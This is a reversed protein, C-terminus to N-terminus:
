KWTTEAPPTKEGNPGPPINNRYKLWLNKVWLIKYHSSAVSGQRNLDGFKLKTFDKRGKEAAVAKVHETDDETMWRDVYAFFADHNWVKEAHMLRMALAQGVWARSTNAIRYGESSLLDKGPLPWDKPHYLDLIGQGHEWKGRDGGDGAWTHGIFIAKAGTYGHEFTQGRYTIPCMATQDDEQFRATPYAIKPQQMDQDDLLLGAFVIPWKRGQNLGGHVQWLRGARTMGWFDIGVQIFNVLLREKEEPTYDMLLLLSAENVNQLVDQGYHDMNELPASFGFDAFDEYPRQFIRAYRNLNAPMGTLKPLKLLLDRKLNRALNIKSYASDCFSPRFADAPQADKVCTLVAATRVADVFQGGYMTIEDNRRSISSMLSDSPRMAIPLPTFLSPNYRGGPIRSDFGCYATFNETTQIVKPNLSSGHRAQKKPYAKETVGEKDIFGETIEDGFLPKPDIMTITVAGVVYWDGNIFQGVPMPKDFTWTIGYQSVSTKKELQEIKLEPPPNKSTYVTMPPLNLKGAKEEADVIESFYPTRKEESAGFAASCVLTLVAFTSMIRM